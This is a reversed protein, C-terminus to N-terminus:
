LTSNLRNDEAMSSGELDLRRSRETPIIFWGLPDLWPHSIHTLHPDNVYRAFGDTVYLMELMQTQHGKKMAERM